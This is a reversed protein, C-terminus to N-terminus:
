ASAGVTVSRSSVIWRRQRTWVAVAAGAVVV